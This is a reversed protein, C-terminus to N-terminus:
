FAEWHFGNWTKGGPMFAQRALHEAILDYHIKYEPGLPGAEELMKEWRAGHPETELLGKVIDYRSLGESRFREIWQQVLIEFCYRLIVKDHESMKEEVAIGDVYKVAVDDVNVVAGSNGETVM